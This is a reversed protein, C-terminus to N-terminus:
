GFLGRAPHPASEQGFVREVERRRHEFIARLDAFIWGLVPTRALPRCYLDFLVVDSILTGDGLPRFTHTHLWTRFPGRVQRDVFGHPPDWEDIRTRWRVPLGHLRLAYDIRAGAALPESSIHLIRFHLFAPTLRELNRATAYFPFVQALPRPVRQACSLRWGAGAPEIAVGSATPM